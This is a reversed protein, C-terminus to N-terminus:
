KRLRGLTNAHWRRWSACCDRWVRLWWPERDVTEFVCKGMCATRSLCPSWPGLLGANPISEDKAIRNFRKSVQLCRRLDKPGLYSFLKLLIEDPLDDLSFVRTLISITQFTSENSPNGVSM